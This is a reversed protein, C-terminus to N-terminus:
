TEIYILAHKNRGLFSNVSNLYNSLCAYRSLVRDRASVLEGEPDRMVRVFCTRAEDDDLYTTTVRGETLAIVLDLSRSPDCDSRVFGRPEFVPTATEGLSTRPATNPIRVGRRM